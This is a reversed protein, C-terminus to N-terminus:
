STKIAKGSSDFLWAWDLFDTGLIVVDVHRKSARDDFLAGPFTQTQDAPLTESKSAAFFQSMTAEGRPSVRLHSTPYTTVFLIIGPKPFPSLPPIFRHKIGSKSVLDM